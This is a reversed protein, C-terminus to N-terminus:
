IIKIKEVRMNDENNFMVYINKEKATFITQKLDSSSEIGKIKLFVSDIYKGKLSYRDILIGRNKNVKSTFVWLQKNVVIMKQIDDYYEKVFGRKQYDKKNKIKVSVFDKKITQIIKESDLDFINIMYKRNTAIYLYKNKYYCYRVKEIENAGVGREGKFIVWKSLFYVNYKVFTGDFFVKYMNWKVDLNSIKNKIKDFPIEYKLMLCKEKDCILLKQMSKKARFEKIFKGNTKYCVIKHPIFQNIFVLDKYFVFSEINLLEGPGQGYKFLNGMYKGKRSFRLLQKKGMIFIDGNNDIRIESPNVFIFQSNEKIVIEKKYKITKFNGTYDTKAYVLFSLIMIFLLVLKKM